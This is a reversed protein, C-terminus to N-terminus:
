GRRGFMGMVGKLMPSSMAEGVQEVIQEVADLMARSNRAVEELLERDTLTGVLQRGKTDQLERVIEGREQIHPQADSDM